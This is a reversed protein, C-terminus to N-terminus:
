SDKSVVKINEYKRWVQNQFNESQETSVLQVNEFYIRMAEDFDTHEEVVYTPDQKYDEFLIPTVEFYNMGKRVVIVQGDEGEKKIVEEQEGAKQEKGPQEATKVLYGGGSSPREFISYGYKLSELFRDKQDKKLEESPKIGHQNLISNVMGMHCCKLLSFYLDNARPMKGDKGKINYKDIEEINVM